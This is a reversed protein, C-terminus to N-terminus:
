RAAVLCAFLAVLATLLFTIWPLLGFSEESSARTSMAKKEQM